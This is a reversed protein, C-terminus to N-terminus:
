HAWIVSGVVNLGSENLGSGHIRYDEDFLNELSLSLRLRDSAQWGGRVLLTNYGPTGESPIRDTDARDRTSLDRQDRAINLVGELWFRAAPPQWRGGLHVTAPMMRDFPERDVAPGSTLFTDVEGDIWTVNGFVDWAETLHYRVQLELGQMFGGASNQKTIENEGDIIRGTPTRIILDNINTHYLSFQGDWNAHVIKMGIEFSTFKEADLGSVPTEIENSRASDFRTLDSLNPARFGQSVGAFLRIKGSSDIPHSYRLSGTFESWHDAVTMREGSLPNQVADANAESWTYRLGSILDGKGTFSFQNQLFAAVTIYSADDAVPGQIGVSRLSGDADYDRRFSNVNDHYLEAGGTWVGMRSPVDLQGWLGFTGVNTGQVDERGDDRIRLREEDQLHYSVSLTLNKAWTSVDSDRYQLYALTRRQDFSRRLENGTTTGQWSKGFVTKHTRWADEQNVHQVAAVLERDKDLDLSVKVDAGQETYGTKPQDGTEGGAHLDGFNKFSLGGFVEFKGNAYGVEPRGVFSHEASAIRLVVRRYVGADPSTDSYSRSIANVTGGIADSGYLVSSPGKVLELRYVSFPDVTNWYQNPGERFTSNNLRIGDILFLTRMGTFGRIYPSGQGHGTKQVMVGSLERMADPITRVQRVEQLENMGQVIVAYPLSFANEARRSATVVIEELDYASAESSSSEAAAAPSGILLVFTLFVVLLLPTDIAPSAGACNTV